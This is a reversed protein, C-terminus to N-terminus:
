KDVQIIGEGSHYYLSATVSKPGKTGAHKEPNPCWVTFDKSDWGEIELLYHKGTVTCTPLKEIYGNTILIYLNQPYHGKHDSSYHYIILGLNRLNGSCYQLEQSMGGGRPYIMNPLIIGFFVGIILISIVCLCFREWNFGKSMPTQDEKIDNM